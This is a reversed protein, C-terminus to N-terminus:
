QPICTVNGFGDRSCRLGNQRLHAYPDSECKATNAMTEGFGGTAPRTSMAAYCEWYLRKREAEARQQVSYKEAAEDDARRKADDAAAQQLAESRMRAARADALEQDARQKAENEQRLRARLDAAELSCQAALDTRRKAFEGFTLTGSVLDAQVSKMRAICAVAIAVPRFDDKAFQRISSIGLQDCVADKEFYRTLQDRELKTPKRKSALQALSYSKVDAPVNDRIAAYDPSANLAANCQYAEALTVAGLTGTALAGLAFCTSMVAVHTFKHLM